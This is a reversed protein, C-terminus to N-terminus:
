RWKADFRSRQSAQRSAAQASTRLAISYFIQTIFLPTSTGISSIREGHSDGRRAFRQNCPIAPAPSSGAIWSLTARWM